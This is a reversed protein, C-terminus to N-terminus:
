RRVEAVDAHRRQKKHKLQRLVEGIIILFHKALACLTTYYGKKERCHYKETRFIEFSIM